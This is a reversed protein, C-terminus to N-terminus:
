REKEQSLGNLLSTLVGKPLKFDDSWAMFLTALFGSRALAEDVLSINIFYFIPFDSTSFVKIFRGVDWFILNNPLILLM